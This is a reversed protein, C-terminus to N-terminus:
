IRAKIAAAFRDQAGAAFALFLSPEIVEVEIVAPGDPGPLLDVRTYLLDAGFRKRLTAVAQEAAAM